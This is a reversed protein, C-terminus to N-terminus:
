YFNNKPRKFNISSVFGITVLLVQQRWPLLLTTKKSSRARNQFLSSKWYLHSSIFYGPFMEQYLFSPKVLTHGLWVFVCVSVDIQKMKRELSSLISANDDNRCDDHNCLCPGPVDGHERVSSKIRWSLHFGTGHNEAFPGRLWCRQEGDTTEPDPDRDCSVTKVSTRSIHCCTGTQLM